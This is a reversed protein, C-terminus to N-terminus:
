RASIRAILDALVPDDAFDKLMALSREIFPRKDPTTFTVGMAEARGRATREFEDWLINMREFSVLAAERLITRHAPSLGAWRQRGILLVDPVMTHEDFSYYRTVEGHRGVILAAISNEAGDVLGLQLASFVDEWPLQVPTAGFTQVLKQMTPSPQIRIKLGDLDRPHDIPKQAYFSRSGAEFFTLGVLGGAEGSALIDQGIADTAVSLWHARDRFLFPLSFLRYPNSTREVVSASAKVLDLRGAKVQALMDLEQGLQGDPFVAIQIAGSSRERAENAFTELAPHVPHSTQLGHGLRLHLPAQASLVAPCALAAAAAASTLLLRRTPPARFAM